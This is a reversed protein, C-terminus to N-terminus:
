PRAILLRDDNIDFDLVEYHTSNDWIRLLDEGIGLILPIYVSQNYYVRDDGDGMDLQNVGYYEADGIVFPSDFIVTDDGGKLQIDINALLGDGAFSDNTAYQGFMLRNATDDGMIQFTPAYSGVSWPGNLQLTDGFSLNLVYGANITSRGNAGLIINDASMEVFDAKVTTNYAQRIAYGEGVSKIDLSVEEATVLNRLLVDNADVYELWGFAPGGSGQLAAIDNDPNTLTAMYSNWTLTGSLTIPATQETEMYGSLTANSGTMGHLTLRLNDLDLDANLDIARDGRLDLYVDGYERDMARIRATSRYMEDTSLFVSGNTALSRSFDLLFLGGTHQTTAGEVGLLINDASLHLTGASLYMRSGAAQSITSNEGLSNVRLSSDEMHIDGLVLDNRDTISVYDDYNTDITVVNFDNDTNNLRIDGGATTTIHTRGAVEAAASQTVVGLSAIKLNQATIEPLRMGLHGVMYANGTTAVSSGSVSLINDADIRVIGSQQEANAEIRSSATMRAQTYAEVYVEGAANDGASNAQITGRQEVTEGAVIVTGADSTSTADTSVSLSGTNIVSNGSGITFSGDDHFVVDSNGMGGHNVAESFLDASVTANLLIKGGKAEISGSNNVAYATGLESALTTEDIRVGILGEDDFTVVAESGAALAVHGLEASILGQNNVSKGLLAVNGGTAANIIGRNIVTGATGDIASFVLDGNMFDDSNINLGSAVLGGVNVVADRGFFVGNTNMLIVQGNADIRGLIQSGSSDLIRNLAISDAGPQVFEVRESAGVNFTDWELSLRDTAQDVRTDAGTQTITGSGDVVVGGTPGGFAEHPSLSYAAIAAVLSKLAFSKFTQTNNVAKM